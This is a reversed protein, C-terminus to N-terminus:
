FFYLSHVTLSIGVTFRSVLARSVSPSGQRADDPMDRRGGRGVVISLIATAALIVREKKKPSNFFCCNLKDCLSLFNSKHMLKM